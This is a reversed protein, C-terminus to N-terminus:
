PFRLLRNLLPIIANSPTFHSDLTQSHLHKSNILIPLYEYHDWQRKVPAGPATILIGYIPIDSTLVAGFAIQQTSLLSALYGTSTWYTSGGTFTIADGVPEGSADLGQITGSDNGNKELIFIISVPQNFVTKM